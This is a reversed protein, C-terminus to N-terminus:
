GHQPYLLGKRMLGPREEHTRQGRKQPRVGRASERLAVTPQTVEKGNKKGDCGKEKGSAAKIRNTNKEKPTKASNHDPGRGKDSTQRCGRLSNSNKLNGQLKPGSAIRAPRRKQEGKVLRNRGSKKKGQLAERVDSGSAKKKRGFWVVNNFFISRWRMSQFKRDIKKREKKEQQQKEERQRRFL